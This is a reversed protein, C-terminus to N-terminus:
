VEATKLMENQIEGFTKEAFYQTGNSSSHNAKNSLISQKKMDLETFKMMLNFTLFICNVKSSLEKERSVNSIKQMVNLMMRFFNTQEVRSFASKKRVNQNKNVNFHLCYM